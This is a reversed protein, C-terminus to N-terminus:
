GESNVTAFREALSQLVGGCVFVLTCESSQMQLLLPWSYSNTGAM